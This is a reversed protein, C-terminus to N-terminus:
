VKHGKLILRACDRVKKSRDHRSVDGVIGVIAQKTPHDTVRALVHSLGHLAGSRGATFKAEKALKTLVPLAEELSWHDGLLDGAMWAAQATESRTNLLYAELLSLIEESFEKANTLDRVCDLFCFLSFHVEYVMRGSRKNIWRRINLISDPLLAVLIKIVAVRVQEISRLSEKRLTRECLSLLRAREVPKLGQVKNALAEFSALYSNLCLVADIESLRTFSDGKKRKLRATMRHDVEQGNKGLKRKM